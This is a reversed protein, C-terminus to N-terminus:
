SICQSQRRSAAAALEKQWADRKAVAAGLLAVGLATGDEERFVATEGAVEWEGASGTTAPVFLAPCAPTKLVVPMPPFSVACPQDALTRALARASHLIPMVFPLVQGQIEACDGIAYIGQASTELFKDVAIGRGTRLGAERALAISPALGLATLVLDAEISRGDDLIAHIGFAGVHVDALRRGLHWRVGASAMREEFQSAMPAPWFRALAHPALDLIDVSHGAHLLDNGFECGIFGAGVVLVRKPADLHSRFVRYDQLSNVNFVGPGPPLCPLPIQHAGTALILRQYRVEGTDTTVRQATADIGRVRTRTKMTVGYQRAFADATANPIAAPAKGQAIAVSLTPKAYIEGADACVLTIPLSPNLKRLERALSHGALGSGVIVVPDQM